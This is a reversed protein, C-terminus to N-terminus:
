SGEKDEPRALKVGNMLQKERYKYQDAKRKWFLKEEREAELTQQLCKIEGQLKHVLLNTMDNTVEDMASDSSMDVTSLEGRVMMADIHDLATKCGPRASFWSPIRDVEALQQGSMEAWLAKRYLRGHHDVPWLDQSEIKSDIFAILTGENEKGREQNTVKAKNSSDDRLKGDSRLDAELRELAEKLRRHQRFTKTECGHGIAEALRARNLGQGRMWYAAIEEASLLKINPIVVQELSDLRDQGIQTNSTM